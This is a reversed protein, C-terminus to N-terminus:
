PARSQAAPPVMAGDAANEGGGAAGDEDGQTAFSINWVDNKRCEDMVRMVHEYRAARDARLVIPQGPFATALARLRVGLSEPTLEVGNVRIAGDSDVNVVIEGPLRDPTEGSDATVVFDTGDYGFTINANIAM